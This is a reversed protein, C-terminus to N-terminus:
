IVNEREDQTPKPLNHKEGLKEFKNVYFQEFYKVM